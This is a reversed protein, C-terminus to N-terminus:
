KMNPRTPKIPGLIKAKEEFVDFQGEWEAKDIVKVPIPNFAKSREDQLQL